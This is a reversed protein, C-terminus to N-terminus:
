KVPNKAQRSPPPAGIHPQNRSKALQIQNQRELFRQKREDSSQSYCKECSVGEEYHPSAKDEETIPRRCAHCQDYQGDQLHHDVAVRNDFVFCEGQWRSEAPDVQELYNLIGGKLHYVEDFGQGLMYSSAKECRIGGTCFMAVKKHKKPECHKAVYDPFQRFTTTEPNLAGEFSGIEVEYDNRTDILLVEPDSILANWDEPEVYQGVALNPDVNPVGLSVIERKLKVKMRYFPRETTTSYKYDINLFRSDHELYAIIAHIDDALGAITGNIGEKALLITGKLNLASAKERLPEQLAEYDDLTVFKYLACVTISESM